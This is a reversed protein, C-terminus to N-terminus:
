CSSQRLCATSLIQRRWRCQDLHSEHFRHRPTFRVRDTPQICPAPIAWYPASVGPGSAIAVLHVDHEPKPVRWEIAAKVVADDPAHISEERIKVGNAYLEM